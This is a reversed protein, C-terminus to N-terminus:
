LILLSLKGSKKATETLRGCPMWHKKHKAETEFQGVFQKETDSLIVASSLVIEM